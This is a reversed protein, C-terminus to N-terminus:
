GEGPGGLMNPHVDGWFFASEVVQYVWQWIGPERSERSGAVNLVKIEHESRGFIERYPKV